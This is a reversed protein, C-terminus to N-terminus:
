PLHARPTPQPRGRLSCPGAAPPARSQSDQAGPPQRDPTLGLGPGANTDATELTREAHRRTPDVQPSCLDETCEWINM